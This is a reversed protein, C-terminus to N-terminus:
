AKNLNHSNLAVYCDDIFRIIEPNSTVFMNKINAPDNTENIIKIIGALVLQNANYRSLDITTTM